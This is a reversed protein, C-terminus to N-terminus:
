TGVFTRDRYAVPLVLSPVMCVVYSAHGVGDAGVAFLLHGQHHPGSMEGEIIHHVFRSRGGVDHSSQHVVVQGPDLAIEPGRVHGIDIQVPIHAYDSTRRLRDFRDVYAQHQEVVSRLAEELVHVDFDDLDHVRGSLPDHLIHEVAGQVILESLDQGIDSRHVDALHGDLDGCLGFGDTYGAIWVFRHFLHYDVGHVMAIVPDRFRHLDGYVLVPHLDVVAGSRVPADGVLVYFIEIHSALAVPVATQSVIELLQPQCFSAVGPYRPDESAQFLVSRSTRDVLRVFLASEGANGDGDVVQEKRLLKWGRFRSGGGFVPIRCLGPRKKEFRQPDM